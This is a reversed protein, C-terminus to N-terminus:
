VEERKLRKTVYVHFSPGGQHSMGSVYQQMQATKSISATSILCQLDPRGAM